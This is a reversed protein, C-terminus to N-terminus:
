SHSLELRENSHVHNRIAELNSPITLAPCFNMECIAYPTRRLGLEHRDGLMIDFAVLHLSQLVSCEQLKDYVNTWRLRDNTYTRCTVFYAGHSHNWPQNFDVKRVTKKLLTVIPNGKLLIVRYEWRKPFVESLYECQPDFDSSDRTIRYEFGGYHRLPRVVFEANGRARVSDGFPENLRTHTRPVSFGQSHLWQRQTLKNAAYLGRMELYHEPANAVMNIPPYAMFFDQKWDYTIDDRSPVKIVGTAGLLRKLKKPTSGFSPPRLIFRTM